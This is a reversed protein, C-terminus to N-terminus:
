KFIIHPFNKLKQFHFILEFHTIRVLYYTLFSILPVSIGIQFDALIKVKMHLYNKSSKVNFYSKSKSNHARSIHSVNTQLCESIISYTLFIFISILIHIHIYFIFNAFTLSYIVQSKKPNLICFTSPTTKIHVCVYLSIKM